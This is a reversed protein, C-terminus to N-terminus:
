GDTAKLYDEYKALSAMFGVNPQCSERRKKAWALADDRSLKHVKMLYAVVVMGSRSHGAKCHILVNFGSKRWGIVTDVLTDLYYVDPADCPWDHLPAWLSARLGVPSLVDQQEIQLSLIAQINKPRAKIAGGMWIGTDIEDMDHVKTGECLYFMGYTTGSLLAQFEQMLSRFPDGWRKRWTKKM